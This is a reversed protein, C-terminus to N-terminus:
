RFYVRILNIIFIEKAIDNNIFSKLNNDIDKKKSFPKLVDNKNLLNKCIIYHKYIFDYLSKLQYDNLTNLIEYYVLRDNSHTLFTYYIDSIETKVVFINSDIIYEDM